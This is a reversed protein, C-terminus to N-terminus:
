NADAVVDNGNTENMAVPRPRLSSKVDQGGGAVAKALRTAGRKTLAM